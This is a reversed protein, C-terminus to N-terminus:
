AKIEELILTAKANGGFLRTSVSGNLYVGSGGVAVGVRVSITLASTVGATFQTVIPLPTQIANSQIGTSAVGIATSGNFAWAIGQSTGSGSVEGLFRIRIKNAANTPTISASVVQAGSTVAPVTDDNPFTASISTYTANEAYVSQVLSGSAPVYGSVLPKGNVLSYHVCRVVGGAYGRFIAFDGAETTINAGGPLILSAGNTLTLIGTFRVTRTKGQSLTIATVATTGTVDILDGTATDLNLTSASAIDAGQKSVKDLIAIQDSQTNTLMQSGILGNPINAAVLSFDTWNGALIGTAIYFQKTDTRVGLQGIYGPVVSASSGSFVLISQATLPTGSLNLFTLLQSPTMLGLVNSGNLFPVTNPVPSVTNVPDNTDGLRFARSVSRSLQQALMTLRDLAREHSKAPFKDNENYVTTQTAAVVRSITIHYTSGYTTNTIITGGDIYGQVPDPTGSVTYDTTEMLTTVAGAADTLQVVLDSTTFFYFTVPFSNGTAQYPGSQSINSSVSM